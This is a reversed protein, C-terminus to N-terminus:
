EPKKSELMKQERLMQIFDGTSGQFVINNITEAQQTKPEEFPIPKISIIDKHTTMLERATKTLSDAGKFYVEIDKHNQSSNAVLEATALVKKGKTLLEKMLNRVEDFDDEAQQISPDKETDDSVVEEQLQTPEPEIIPDPEFSDLPDMDFISALKDSM